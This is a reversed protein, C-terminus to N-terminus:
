ETVIGGPLEHVHAYGLGTLEGSDMIWGWARAQDWERRKRMEQTDVDPWAELPAALPQMM